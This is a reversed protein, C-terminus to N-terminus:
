LRECLNGICVPMGSGKWLTGCAENRRYNYTSLALIKDKRRGKHACEPHDRKLLAQQVVISM